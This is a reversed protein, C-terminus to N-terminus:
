EDTPEDTNYPDDIYGEKILFTLGVAVADSEDDTLYKQPGVFRELSQAVQDKSANGSGAVHKKISKVAIDYFTKETIQWLTLDVAGALRLLKDADGFHGIFVRERCIFPVKTSAVLSGFVDTIRALAKGIPVNDSIPIHQKSIISANRTAADYHLHAIGTCHVSFDCAILDFDGDM